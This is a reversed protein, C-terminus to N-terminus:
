KISDKVPLMKTSDVPKVAESNSTKEPVINEVKKNDIEPISVENEASPFSFLQPGPPLIRGDLFEELTKPRAKEDWSFRSLKLSAPTVDKMPTTKLEVDVRYYIKDIEENEFYVEIRESKGENAGVYADEEDKVYYISSANPYAILSDMKNDRLYAKIYNGQIQDYMGAKEPGSRTIMIANKPVHVEKLKSSDMLMYIVDGKLQSNRPWLLPNKYMRLLSDVQSYRISDCKGQLSDSYILVNHYGRFFRPGSTDANNPTNNYTLATSDLVRQREVSLSNATDKGESSIQGSEVNGKQYVMADMRQKIANLVTDKNNQKQVAIDPPPAMKVSDDITTDLSDQEHLILSFTDVSDTYDLSEKLPVIVTDTASVTGLSDLKSATSDVGVSGRLEDATKQLSDQASMILGKSSDPACYFTDAKMYLSDKGDAKKLLPKGYALLTKYIENYHAHNCYLTIKMGTDIAIVDGFAYGYGTIRDYNLTDGEIYQAENLISSRGVFHAKKNRKNYNGNSTQLISKDNSVVSPGFFKAVETDTNYGLDSSVAHYEPDQVDVDGRFRADKTKMNYEGTNSSLTTTATQLYGRKRYKGIKTILNYEIEKSWLSNEKGDDLQVEGMAKNAKMYVVKNNGTYRMYDALAVTGDAQRIVVDGFAEVSNKNTYFFASDCYLTDSGHLLKVNWLLKQVTVSDSQIYESMDNGLIM